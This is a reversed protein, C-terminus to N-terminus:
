GVMIGRRGTFRLIERMEEEDYSNQWVMPNDSPVNFVRTMVYISHLCHEELTTQCSCQITRGISVRFTQNQRDRFVFSFPGHQALLYLTMRSAVSIHRSIHTPPTSHSFM